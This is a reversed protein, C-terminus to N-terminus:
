ITIFSLFNVAFWSDFGQFVLRKANAGDKQLEIGDSYPTVGILKKYPIKASKTPSYFIFNKNTLVFSGVAQKEMSSHEIPHGKMGGTRYYVGRMLRFSLGSNRGVWQRVIKEQYMTVNPYVWVVYEGAGLLIPLSTNLPPPMQGKQLQRLIAAQQVKNINSGQFQQPLNSLSLHLTQVFDDLERQESDSILGDELFDHAAKDLVALGATEKQSSSIPILQSILQARKEVKIMPEKEAFHSTLIGQYLRMGLTDLESNKNLSSRSFGINNIFIDVLQLHQKQIPLRISDSFHKISQRCCDEIEGESLYKDIKLSTLDALVENITKSGKFYANLSTLCEALGQEHLKECEKHSNSFFGANLGCYKCTGM